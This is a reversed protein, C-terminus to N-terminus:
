FSGGPAKRTACHNFTRRSICSVPELGPGPPDWTGPAVPGTRWLQQAQARSGTLWLQQLRYAQLGHQAVLSAVATLRCVVTFLLGREGCSSFLGHLLSSWDCGFILHIFLYIFYFLIFYIFLIFRRLVSLQPSTRHTAPPQCSLKQDPPTRFPQM